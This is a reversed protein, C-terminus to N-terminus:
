KMRKLLGFLAMGALGFAARQYRYILFLFLLTWMAIRRISTANVDDDNAHTCAM